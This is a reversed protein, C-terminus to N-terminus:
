SKSLLAVVNKMSLRGHFHVRKPKTLNAVPEIQNDSHENGARRTEFEVCLKYPVPTPIFSRICDLCIIAEGNSIELNLKTM